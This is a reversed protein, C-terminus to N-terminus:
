LLGKTVNYRFLILANGKIPCLRVAYIVWLAFTAIWKCFEKVLAKLYLVKSKSQTRIKESRGVGLGCQRIYQWTTRSEPIVHHVAIKNFYYIKGGLGKVRFFFDKEEGGIMNKGSRGLRTNFGDKLIDFCERKIGMNAGIPYSNGEFLSVKDGKNIASVWSYSWKSMWKPEVGTEYLPIIEGGYAMADPYESLHSNLNMLYDKGVFADDDLFVLIDGKSEKVARNRAYSLGQQNEVVYSYNVQPYLSAFRECEKETNDSSNNNVVVIEYGDTPYDNQAVCSLTRFIYKDRNYTCVVISIM